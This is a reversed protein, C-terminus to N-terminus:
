KVLKLSWQNVWKYGKGTLCKIEDALISGQRINQKSVSLFVQDGSQILKDLSRTHWGVRTKAGLQSQYNFYAM